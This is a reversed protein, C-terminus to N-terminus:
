EESDATIPASRRSRRVGFLDKWADKLVNRFERYEENQESEAREGYEVVFALGFGVMTGLIGGLILKLLRGRPEPLSPAQPEDITTLVPTTRVEDIRAQEYAQAMATVLEQRMGVRRQLRDHQFTLQSSNTFQRNEDLFIRLSEEVTVLEGQLQVLRDEAFRREASAESQRTELDFALILDLLGRGIAASLEPDATRVMLSVIGTGRGISVGVVQEALHRRTREMTEEATSAEIEFREALYVVKMGAPTTVRVGDRVVADLIERSKILEEYFEPSRASGGSRPMSFGFQAALGAAGALEGQEGGNPLFSATAVYERETMLASPLTLLVFVLVSLVIVRRRRLLVSAVEFLSIEDDYLEDGRVNVGGSEV